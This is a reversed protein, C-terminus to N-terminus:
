SQFHRQHSHNLILASIGHSTPRLRRWQGITIPQSQYEEHATDTNHTVQQNVIVLPHLEVNGSLSALPIDRTLRPNGRKGVVMERYMTTGCYVMAACSANGNVVEEHISPESIEFSIALSISEENAAVTVSTQLTGDPYDDSYPRLVPYLYNRNPNYKM